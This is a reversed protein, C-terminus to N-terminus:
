LAPAEWSPIGAARMQQYYTEHFPRTPSLPVDENIMLPRTVKWWTDYATRMQEVVDPHQDIVNATQGPDRQMDYLAANDVFRFRENRVAFDRWQFPNPDSGKPWRGKHTFLYRDPWHADPSEILPLLSRGEV